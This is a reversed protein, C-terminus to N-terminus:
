PGAPDVKLIRRHDDLLSRASLDWLDMALLLHAQTEASRMGVRLRSSHNFPRVVSRWCLRRARVHRPGYPINNFLEDISTSPTIDRVLKVTEGATNIDKRDGTTVVAKPDLLLIDLAATVDPREPVAVAQIRQPSQGDPQRDHEARRVDEQVRAADLERYFALERRDHEDLSSYRRHDVDGDAGGRVATASRRGLQETAAATRDYEHATDRRASRDAGVRNPSLTPSRLLDEPPRYQATPSPTHERMTTSAGFSMLDPEIRFPNSTSTDTRPIGDVPGDGDVFGDM